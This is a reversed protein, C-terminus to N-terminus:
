VNDSCNIKIGDYSVKQFPQFLDKYFYMLRNVGQILVFKKHTAPHFHNAEVPEKFQPKISENLRRISTSVSAAISCQNSLLRNSLLNHMAVYCNVSVANNM